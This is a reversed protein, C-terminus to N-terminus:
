QEMGSRISDEDVWFIINSGFELDYEEIEVPGEDVRDDIAVKFTYEGTEDIGTDFGALENPEITAEDDVLVSQETSLHVSATIAEPLQNHIVIHIDESEPHADTSATPTETPTRETGRDSSCGALGVGIGTVIQLLTRRQLAM